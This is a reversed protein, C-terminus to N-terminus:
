QVFAQPTAQWSVIHVEWGNAFPRSMRRGIRSTLHRPWRDGTGAAVDEDQIVEMAKGIAGRRL